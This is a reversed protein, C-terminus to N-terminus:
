RRPLRQEAQRLWPFQADLTAIAQATTELSPVAPHAVPLGAAQNARQRARWNRAQARGGRTGIRRLQEPTQNFLIPFASM